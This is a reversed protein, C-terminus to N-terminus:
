KQWGFIFRNQLWSNAIDLPFQLGSKCLYEPFFILHCHITSISGFDSLVKAFRRLYLCVENRGGLFSDIKDSKFLMFFGLMM